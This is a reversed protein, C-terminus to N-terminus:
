HSSGVATRAPQAGVYRHSDESTSILGRQLEHLRKARRPRQRARQLLHRSRARGQLWSFIAGRLGRLRTPVPECPGGLVVVGTRTREGSILDHALCNRQSKIRPLLKAACGVKTIAATDRQSPRMQRTSKPSSHYSRGAVGLLPRVCTLERCHM